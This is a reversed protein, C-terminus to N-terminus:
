LVQAWYNVFDDKCLMLLAMTSETPADKVAAVLNYLPQYIDALNESISASIPTDSYQMDDLFVELYIDNEAMLHAINERVINYQEETLAPNIFANEDIEDREEDTLELDSVTIYLRPLLKLMKALFDEQEFEELHELDHCFENALALVTLANNSIRQSENM